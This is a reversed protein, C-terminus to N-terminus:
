DINQIYFKLPQRNAWCDPSPEITPDSLFALVIDRACKSAPLVGHGLQPDEFWWSSDGPWWDGRAPAVPDYRGSLLLIPVAPYSISTQNRRAESGLWGACDDVLELATRTLPAYIAPSNDAEVLIAATSMARSEEACLASFYLGESHTDIRGSDDAYRLEGIETLAAHNGTAIAAIFAPVLPLHRADALMARLLRIFDAGDLRLAANPLLGDILIPVANLKSVAQRFQTQLHPYAGECDPDTACDDFIRQLARETNAALYTGASVVPLTVSDLVLSRIREPLREAVLLAIRAGFSHGYIDVSMLQMAEILAVIDLAISEANYAALKIGAGELRKRCEVLSNGAVTRDFEPCNLSPLSRGSGRQDVFIVDNRRHLDASLWADIESSAADGPGGALYILPPSIPGERASVVALFLRITNGASASRDEPVTLVGCAIEASRTNSHTAIDPPCAVWTVAHALPQAFVHRPSLLVGFAAFLCLPTAGVLIKFVLWKSKYNLPMLAAIQRSLVRLFSRSLVASSSDGTNWSLM